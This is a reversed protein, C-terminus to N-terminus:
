WQPLFSSRPARRSLTNMPTCKNGHLNGEIGGLPFRSQPLSAEIEIIRRQHELSLSIGSLVRAEVVTFHPVLGDTEQVTAHDHDHPRRPALRAM